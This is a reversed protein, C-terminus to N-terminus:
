ADYPSELTVGYDTRPGPGSPGTARTGSRRRVGRGGVPVLQERHLGPGRHLELREHRSPRAPGVVVGFVVYATPGSESNRPDTTGSASEIVPTEPVLGTEDTHENVTSREDYRGMM